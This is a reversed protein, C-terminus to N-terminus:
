HNAGALTASLEAQPLLYWVRPGLGTALRGFDLPPTAAVDAGSLLGFLSPPRVYQVLKYKALGAEQAAEAAADELTGVADILGYKKAEDATFIGGDARKRTYTATKPEGNEVVVNGKDDYLPISRPAFLDETLKGKLAPRGEEVVGLFQRYATDVMDAWPQREQPSMKHFLSGSGKVDGAKIMEMEFGYKKAFEAANPFAAYVGISGTITTREAFLKKQAPKKPDLAAPMAVYYGGSAAMAGMSVVLPKADTGKEALKPTTGDRLHVLRRHLDDSATISGGPSEIRVVVAKVNKDEAAREIQKHPYALLGEMIPGEIRIVAVKDAAAASGGLFKENVALSAYDAESVFLNRFLLGACAFLNLGLSGLLLLVLLARGFGGGSRPPPPPYRVPLVRPPVTVTPPPPQPAPNVPPVDDFDDAM